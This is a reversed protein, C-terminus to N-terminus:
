ENRMVDAPDVRLVRRAPMFAAVATAALLLLPATIFTSADHIEVQYLSAAIVRTLAWAGALGVAIGLAAVWAIDRFVVIVLDSTTAGLAMRIGFERMRHTIGASVVAYVGFTALALAFVAFALILGANTRREAAAAGVVDDMMRVDYIAQSPDAAHAAERVITLLQSAPMAGRAVVAIDSPPRRYIPVYVQLLPDRDLREARVDSVVGIVTTPLSDNETHFTRGIPDAGMWAKRALAESVVAVLPATSDDATTFLRGRRLAIALAPFYGGSAVLLHASLNAGPTSSAAGDITLGVLIGNDALPLDNVVGAATIGPQASMQEVIAEIRQVRAARTAGSRSFSIKLTAAHETDMGRDAGVLKAFSRLLLGAGALLILALALEVVVLSRRARGRDAPTAGRGSRLTIAHGLAPHTANLAPWLGFGCGAVVTLVVTSALLALDLQPAAVGALQPPLLMRLVGFAAFALVIGFAAGISALLLNETMLQQVVRARTAGLAQRVALERRRTSGATVLLNAVNVCAILLVLATAGFLVLLEQRKNGVLEQQLPVAAGRKRIDDIAYDLQSHHGPAIFQATSAQMWRLQLRQSAGLIDSGRAVRAIVHTNLFTHFAAFTASTTPVSLPIWLDSQDPFSFGVPMVGIVLYSTGSLVINRGIVSAGGYQRRWLGDSLIVAAQGHPTGEEALFARGIAPGVGLTRFLNSTVVGAKVRLPADADDLNLGGSAYVAVDSFADSLEAVDVTTLIHAPKLPDQAGRDYPVQVDHLAALERSRQFPLPRLLVANVASFMATTAGVGVMVMAVVAVTVAPRQRMSRSAYRVDQTLHDLIRAIGSRDTM